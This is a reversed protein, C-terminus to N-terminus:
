GGRALGLARGRDDLAFAWRAASPVPEPGYDFSWGKTMGLGEPSPGGWDRGVRRGRRAVSRSVGSTARALMPAGAQTLAIASARKAGSRRVAYSRSDRGRIARERANGSRVSSGNLAAFQPGWSAASRRERGRGCGSRERVRV